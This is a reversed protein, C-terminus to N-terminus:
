NPSISITISKYNESVGVVDNGELVLVLTRTEGAPIAGNLIEVTADGFSTNAPITFQGTTSYHTGEVATSNAADVSFNIVQDSSLHPSVLNVQESITGDGSEVSRTYSGTTLTAQNFEVVAPGDYKYVEDDDEFCSTLATCILAAFLFIRFNMMKM